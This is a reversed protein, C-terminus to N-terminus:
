EELGVAKLAEAHDFHWEVRTILGSRLTWIGTISASTRLGSGRGFGGWDQRLVVRGDPLAFVERDEVEVRVWPSAVEELWRRYADRGRLPEAELFVTRDPFAEVDPACSALTADLDGKAYVETAALVVELNERSV